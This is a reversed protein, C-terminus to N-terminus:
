EVIRRDGKVLPYKKMFRRLLFLGNIILVIGIVIPLFAFTVTIFHAAVFLGIALLGYAYLRKLGMTYGFIGSIAAAGFGIFLLSNSILLDKITQFWPQSSSFAFVM